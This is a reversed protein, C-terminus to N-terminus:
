KELLKIEKDIRKILQRHSRAAMDIVFYRLFEIEGLRTNLLTKYLKDEYLAEIDHPRLPRVNFGLRQIEGAFAINDFLSTCYNLFHTYDMFHNRESEKILPYVGEYLDIIKIRLSDNTITALGESKLTEYTALTGTWETQFLSGGFSHDLTDSYTRNKLEELINKISFETINVVSEYSWLSLSDKVLAVRLEKLLTVEKKTAKREENWTNIQLAILIGIVVLVIEGIAYLLYRGIPSTPKSFKGAREQADNNQQSNTGVPSNESFLSKRIHRFFKIM